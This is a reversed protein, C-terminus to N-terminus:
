LRGLTATPAGNSLNGSVRNDGYSLLQGAAVSQLGLANGTVTSDALRLVALSGEARIGTETSDSVSCRNLHVDVAGAVDALAHVGYLSAGEISSDSLEGSVPGQLLVGVETQAIQLRELQISASGAAGPKIHIAADVGASGGFSRLQVNRMVLSAHGSPQFDVGYATTSEISSDEIILAKGALFRIGNLGSGAGHLAMRRLSVVDNAGANVIIGNTGAFLVGAIDGEAELTIAKTITVAGYSGPDLVSIVGGAATKSIAGAFTRCPATRSCPNADDGVGSVWTRTAQAQAFSPLLCLVLLCLLLAPRFPHRM